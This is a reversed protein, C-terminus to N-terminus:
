GAHRAARSIFEGLGRLASAVLYVAFSALALRVVFRGWSSGEKEHM